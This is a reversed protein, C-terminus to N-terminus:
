HSILFIIKSNDEIGGRIQLESFGQSVWKRDLASTTHTHQGTELSHYIDMTSRRYKPPSEVRHRYASAMSHLNMYKIDDKRKEAQFKFMRYYGEVLITLLCYLM